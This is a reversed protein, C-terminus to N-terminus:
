RPSSWWALISWCSPPNLGLGACKSGAGRSPGAFALLVFSAIKLVMPQSALMPPAIWIVAQLLIGFTFPGIMGIIQGAIGRAFWFGAFLALTVFFATDPHLGLEAVVSYWVLVFLGFTFALRKM